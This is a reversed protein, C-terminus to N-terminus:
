VEPRVGQAGVAAISTEPATTCEGWSGGTYASGVNLDIYNMKRKLLESNTRNYREQKKIMAMLETRLTHLQEKARPDEATDAIQLLTIKAGSMGFRRAYADTLLTRRSELDGLEYSLVEEAELLSGLKKVDGGIISAKKQESLCLLQQLIEKEGSFVDVIEKVASVYVDDERRSRNM